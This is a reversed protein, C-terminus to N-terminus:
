GCTLCVQIIQAKSIRLHFYKPLSNPLETRKKPDGNPMTSRASFRRNRGHEAYRLFPFGGKTHLLSRVSEFSKDPMFFGGELFQTLPASGLFSIRGPCHTYVNECEFARPGPALVRPSM